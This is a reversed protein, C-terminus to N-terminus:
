TRSGTNQSGQDRPRPALDASSTTRVRRGTGLSARSGTCTTMSPDIISLYPSKAVCQSGWCPNSLADPKENHVAHIGRMALEGLIARRTAVCGSPGESRLGQSAFGKAPMSIQVYFCETQGDEPDLM